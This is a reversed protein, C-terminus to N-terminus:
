NIIIDLACMSVTIELDYLTLVNLLMRAYLQMLYNCILCKTDGPNDKRETTVPLQWQM